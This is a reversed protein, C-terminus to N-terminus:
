VSWREGKQESELDALHGLRLRVTEDAGAAGGGLELEPLEAWKSRNSLAPQEPLSKAKEGRGVFGDGFGNGPEPAAPFVSAFEDFERPKNQKVPEASLAADAQASVKAAAAPVMASKEPFRGAAGRGTFNETMPSIGAADKAPFAAAAPVSRSRTEAAAFAPHAASENKRPTLFELADDPFPKSIKQMKQPPPGEEGAPTEKGPIPVIRSEPAADPAVNEPSYFRAEDAFHESSFREPSIHEPSIHEPPFHEPSFHEPEEKKGFTLFGEPSFPRGGRKEPAQVTSAPRDQGPGERLTFVPRNPAPKRKGREPERPAVNKRDDGPRDDGPVRPRTKEVLTEESAPVGPSTERPAFTGSENEGAQPEIWVVGPADGPRDGSKAGPEPGPEPGPEAAQPEGVPETGPGVAQPEAPEGVPEAGFETFSLGATLELWHAPPTSVFPDKKAAPQEVPPRLFSAWSDFVRALFSFFGNKVEALRM